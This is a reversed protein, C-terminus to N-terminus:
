DAPAISMDEARVQVNKLADFSLLSADLDFKEAVREFLAHYGAKVMAEWKLGLSDATKRIAAVDEGEIEVFNGYPLEDLMVHLSDIEYTARYKEYYVIPKFGLADLFEKAADFSGVTFEIERRSIVGGTREAGPGKFTLKAETDSRLRLVKGNNRLEGDPTDYRFNVEHVRPQIMKAKLERLRSEIRSLNQVYFKVETEQGNM